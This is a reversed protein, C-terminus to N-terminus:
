AGRSAAPPLGLGCVDDLRTQLLSRLANLDAIRLDVDALKTTLMEQIRAAPLAADQLPEMVEAVERLTFGLRQALRVTRILGATSPDFARYGNARRESRILGRAEYLRLTDTSVGTAAALKGITMM